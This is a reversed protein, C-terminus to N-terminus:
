REIIDKKDVDKMAFFTFEYNAYIEIPLKTYLHLNLTLNHSTLTHNM